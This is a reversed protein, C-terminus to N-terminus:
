TVSDKTSDEHKTAITIKCAGAKKAAAMVKILNGNLSEKDAKILVMGSDIVPLKKRLLMEVHEFKVVLDDVAFQGEKSIYVIIKDTEEKEENTIAEPVTIKLAPQIIISGSVLFVILLSMCVDVLPTMDIKIKEM